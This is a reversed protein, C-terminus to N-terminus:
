PRVVLQPFGKGAAYEDLQENIKDVHELGDLVKFATPEAVGKELWRPLAKWFPEAHRGMHRNTNQVLTARALPRTEHIKAENVRHLTALRTPKNEALFATALHHEWSACDIIRTVRDAGGAATHVQEIISEDSAHRDIVHSAGLKKLEDANSLSAVAIIESIGLLRTALRIFIKAINTGAGLVVVPQLSAPDMSENDWPAPFEFGFDTFLAIINTAMNIPLTSVEDDSFNAPTHAISDTQLIAYEQLGAQDATPCQINSTGFVRDGTKFDAVSPGAEEVVGAISSGLVFPLKDGIFVGRDRGYSDHPM